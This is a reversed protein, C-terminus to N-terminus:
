KSPIFQKPHNTHFYNNFSVCKRNTCMWVISDSDEFNRTRVYEASTQCRPCLVANSDADRWQVRMVSRGLDTLDGIAVLGRACLALATANKVFRYDGSFLLEWMAPTLSEALESRVGDIFAHQKTFDTKM